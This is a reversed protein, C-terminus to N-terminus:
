GAAVADAAETLAELFVADPQPGGYRGDIVFFPVRLHRHAARNSTTM